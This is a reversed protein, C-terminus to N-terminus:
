GGPHLKGVGGRRGHGERSGEGVEKVMLGVGREEMQGGDMTERLAERGEM